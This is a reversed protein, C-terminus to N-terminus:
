VLRENISIARKIEALMRLYQNKTNVIECIVCVDISVNHMGGHALMVHGCHTCPKYLWAIHDAPGVKVTCPEIRSTDAPRSPSGTIGSLNRSQESSDNETM